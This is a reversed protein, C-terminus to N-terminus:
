RAKTAKEGKPSGIRAEVYSIIQALAGKRLKREVQEASLAFSEQLWVRKNPNTSTTLYRAKVSEQKLESYFGWISRHNRKLWIERQSHEHHHTQESAALAEVYQVAVYFLM